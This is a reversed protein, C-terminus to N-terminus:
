TAEILSTAGFCVDPGEGHEATLGLVFYFCAGEGEQGEAWVRGAHREVVRKVTALGIGTGSFDSPSHLREFTGFLKGAHAMDFGAGNDKVFYVTEGMADVAGAKSGIEICAHEHRATFKWANGVLNQMVALLLRADGRALMADQIHVQVRRDPDREQCEHVAQRAIGSLDVSSFQLTDRSLQALSLLGDILEAMQRTGSRIRSLYHKAKKDAEGGVARELLHSFGEITKLPSRLDHSVSYSFAQLEQNAAELQATRHRVREELQTNLALIESKAQRRETIDRGVSVWHTCWGREDLLPAVNVELWFAEGAKTHLMIEEQVVRLENRAAMREYDAHEFLTGRLFEPSKGITEDRLFGTRRVFADNVFVIQPGGQARSGAQTILVIDSLCSVASELLQLQSQALRKSTIDQFYVALGEKTPHAHIDFWTDLPPYFFEFQATCQTEMARRYEQECLSGVASPFEQWVNKGLLDQRSRQLIREAQGNLYAFNWDTDLLFFGDTISEFTATLKASLDTERLEAQKQASIDQLAGQVGTAQSQDGLRLDGHSRVHRISGDARVIRHASPLPALHQSMPAAEARVRARDDPHVVNLYADFSPIFGSPDVGCIRFMEDSWHMTQSAFDFEWSGLHAIRQAENMSRSREHLAAQVAMREIALSLM